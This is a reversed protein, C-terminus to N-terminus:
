CQEDMAQGPALVRKAAEAWSVTKRNDGHLMIHHLRVVCCIPDRRLSQEHISLLRSFLLEASFLLPGFLLLCISAWVQCPMKQLAESLGAGCLCCWWTRRSKLEVVNFAVAFAAQPM